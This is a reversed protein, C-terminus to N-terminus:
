RPLVEDLLDQTRAYQVTRNVRDIRDIRHPSVQEPEKTPVGLVYDGGACARFAEAEATGPEHIVDLKGPEAVRVSGDPKMDICVGPRLEIM